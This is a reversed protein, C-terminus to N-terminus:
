QDYQTRTTPVGSVQLMQQNRRAEDSRRPCMKEFEQLLRDIDCYMQVVPWDRDVDARNKTCHQIYCSIAHFYAKDLQKGVKRLSSWEASKVPRGAWAEPERISLDDKKNNKRGSFFQVLNRYHLLFCELYAYDDRPARDRDARHLRAYSFDLMDIEYRITDLHLEKKPRTFM